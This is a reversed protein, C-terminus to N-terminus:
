FEYGLRRKTADLLTLVARRCLIMPSMRLLSPYIADSSGGTVSSQWAGQQSPIQSGWLTIWDPSAIDTSQARRNQEITVIQHVKEKAPTGTPNGHPSKRARRNTVAAGRTVNSVHPSRPRQMEPLLSSFLHCLFCGHIPNLGTSFLSQSHLEFSDCCWSDLFGLAPAEALEPFWVRASCRGSCGAGM